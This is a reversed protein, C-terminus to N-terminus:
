KLGGRLSRVRCSEGVGFGGKGYALKLGEVTPRAWNGNALRGCHNLRSSSM